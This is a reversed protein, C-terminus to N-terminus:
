AEVGELNSPHMEALKDPSCILLKLGLYILDVNAVSITLEGKVVVGVELIQDLMDVLTDANIEPKAYQFPAKAVSM